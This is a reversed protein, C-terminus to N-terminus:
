CDFGSLRFVFVCLIAVVSKLTGRPKRPVGGTASELDGRIDCPYAPGEQRAAGRFSYRLDNVVL